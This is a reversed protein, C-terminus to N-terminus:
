CDRIGGGRVGRAGREALSICSRMVSLLPDTGSRCWGGKRRWRKDEKEQEQEEEDMKQCAGHM